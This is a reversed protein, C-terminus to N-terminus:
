KKGKGELNAFYNKLSDFSTMLHQPMAKTDAIVPMFNTDGVWRPLIHMHLHERIGAGGAVGLNMGLNYGEPEYSEKLASICHRSYVSLDGLTKEDLENMDATHKNPVVMLHGNNYPYKNLIVFVREARHLILNERDKNDLLLGCFICGGGPKKDAKIFEMRWPAWLQKTM